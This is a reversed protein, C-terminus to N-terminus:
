KLDTEVLPGRPRTPCDRVLHGILGCHFCYNPLREYRVVTQVIDALGDVQVRLGQVLAQSVNFMIRVRIVSGLCESYSGTDVEIVKGVMNGLIEGVEKTICSLPLNLIQIWIPFFLFKESEIRGM